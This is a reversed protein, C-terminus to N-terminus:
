KAKIKAQVEEAKKLRAEHAAKEKNAEDTNKGYDM